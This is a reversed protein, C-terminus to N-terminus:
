SFPMGTISMRRAAPIDFFMDCIVQDVDAASVAFNVDFLKPNVYLVSLPITSPSSSFVDDVDKKPSCWMRFLGDSTNWHTMMDGYCKDLMTKYGYYRPAYGVIKESTLSVSRFNLSSVGELGLNQYEPIFFDEMELLQNNRDIGYANYEAEPLMSWIGMIVGFDRATFEAVRGNLSALGKGAVDGLQQNISSGVEATANVDGINLPSDISGLYTPVGDRAYAPKDGYHARMNDSVRNGARLANERWIQVAEIRRLSLADLSYYIDIPSSTTSSPVVTRSNPSGGDTSSTYRQHLAGSVGFSGSTFDAVLNRIGTSAAGADVGFPLDYSSVNGFQSAPLLGTFLDKKWLRYRLQCMANLRQAPFATSMFDSDAETSCVYDDFNFLAAADYNPLGRKGDDYYAQRYYHYWISNYAALRFLNVKPADDDNNFYKDTFDGYGLDNLLKCSGKKYGLGVVDQALGREMNEYLQYASIHPLFKSQKLAASSPESKQVMFENFNRWIDSYPVFYLDLHQKVRLFPSTVMPLARVLDSVNIKIHDGPVTELSLVPRLEGFNASFVRRHSLDFVNRGQTHSPKLLKMLNKPM